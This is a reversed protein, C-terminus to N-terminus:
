LPLAQGTVSDRIHFSGPGIVEIVKNVLFSAPDDISSLYRVVPELRERQEQHSMGGERLVVLGPHLEVNLLVVFDRVNCTVVALDHIFAYRWLDSDSRGALGAHPVALAYIGLSGLWAVLRPSIHEDLLFRM